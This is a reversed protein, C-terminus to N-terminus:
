KINKPFSSKKPKNMRESCWINFSPANQTNVRKDLYLNKRVKSDTAGDAKVERHVLDNSHELHNELIVESDTVDDAKDERHALDNSYELRNKLIHASLWDKKAKIFKFIMDNWSDDNEM